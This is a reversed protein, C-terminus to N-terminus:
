FCNCLFIQMGGVMFLISLQKAPSERIMDWIEALKEYDVNRVYYVLHSFLRPTDDETGNTTKQKLDELLDIINEVQIKEEVIEQKNEFLLSTRRNMPMNTNETQIDTKVTTLLKVDQTTYTVAGSYGHSLPQFGHRESCKSSDLVGDNTHTQLCHQTSRFITILVFIAVFIMYVFRLLPPSKKKTKGNYPVSNWSLYQNTRHACAELNKEKEVTLPNRGLIKYHTECNGSIDTEYILSNEKSNSIGTQFASLVARKINM